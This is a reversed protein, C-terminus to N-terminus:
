QPPAAAKQNASPPAARRAEAILGACDSDKGLGLEITPILAGVGQLLVGLGVMAAVRGATVAPDPMAQPHKLTGGIHVPARFTLISPSKPHSEITLKLSEDRFDISGNGTITTDSTDFVLTKITLVGGQLGSDAVMCRIRYKANKDTIAIGLAEAV